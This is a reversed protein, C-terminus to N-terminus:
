FLVHMYTKIPSNDFFSDNRSTWLAWILAAAGILRLKCNLHGGSIAWDNFLHLVSNPKSINFAIHVATWMFKAFYCYFFINSLNMNHVFCVSNEEGGIGGLYTIRPLSWV